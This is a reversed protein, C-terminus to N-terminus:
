RTSLRTLIAVAATTRNEVHLKRLISEVHKEVTRPAVNLIMGIEINTKGQALWFAVQSERETLSEARTVGTTLQVVADHAAEFVRANALAQRVHPALLALAYIDEDRFHKKTRRLSLATVRNPTVVLPVNAHEIGIDRYAERNGDFYWHWAKQPLDSMRRTRLDGALWGNIHPHSAVAHPIEPLTRDTIVPKSERFGIVETRTGVNFDFWGGGDAEAIELALFPVQRQLEDVTLCAYLRPLTRLLRDYVRHSLRPRAM